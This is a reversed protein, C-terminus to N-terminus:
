NNKYSRIERFFQKLMESAEEKLVGNEIEVKHNYNENDLVNAVSKIAGFKPEETAYVVKKIRAHLIAGACMLCPELTVYLIAGELIWANLKKCAKKIALIEAHDFPNNNKYKKNYASSIIKGEKTIVCSVPIDGNKIAKKNMMKMKNVIIKEIM